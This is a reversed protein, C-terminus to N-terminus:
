ANTAWPLRRRSIAIELAIARDQDKRLPKCTNAFMCCGSFLSRPHPLLDRHESRRSLLSLSLEAYELSLTRLLQVLVSLSLRLHALKSPRHCTSTRLVSAPDVFDLLYTCVYKPAANAFRVIIEHSKSRRGIFERPIRPCKSMLVGVKCM